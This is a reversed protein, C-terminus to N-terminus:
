ISDAIIQKPKVEKSESITVNHGVVAIGWDDKNEITEPSRGIHANNEIVCEEGVIAYEVIAGKKIVSGPMVISYKVSAGEEITVGSFVVSFDVTGDINSGESIMSNEINANSGIYQPPM